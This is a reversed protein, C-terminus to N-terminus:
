VWALGEMDRTDQAGQLCGAQFEQSREFQPYGSPNESCAELDTVHNLRAWSNGRIHRELAHRERLWENERQQQLKAIKIGEQAHYAMVVLCPVAALAVFRWLVARWSTALLALAIIGLVLGAPGFLFALVGPGPASGVYGWMNVHLIDWSFQLALYSLLLLAGGLTLRVWRDRAWIRFVFTLVTLIVFGIPVLEVDVDLLDFSM